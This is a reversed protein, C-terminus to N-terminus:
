LTAVHAPNPQYGESGPSRRSRAGGMAGDFARVGKDGGRARSDLRGASRSSGAVTAKAADELDAVTYSGVSEKIASISSEVAARLLDVMARDAVLNADAEIVIKGWLANM